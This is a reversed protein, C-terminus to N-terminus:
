AVLTDPLATTVLCVCGNRSRAVGHETGAAMRLYDGTKLVYEGFDLDGELMLCEEDQGHAHAPYSAGPEFRMLVTMRKLKIDKNLIRMTVGPEGTEEWDGSGDRHIVIGSDSSTAENSDAEDDDIRSLLSQLVADDPPVPELQDILAECVSDYATLASRLEGDQELRSEFEAREDPTMAGAAYLAAREDATGEPDQHLDSM